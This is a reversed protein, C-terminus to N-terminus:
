RWAGGGPPPLRPPHHSVERFISDIEKSEPLVGRMMELYRRRRVRLWTPKFNLDFVWGVQLLKFDNLNRVHGIDVAKRSLLDAAVDRSFGPTDPLGLELTGNKGRKRGYYHDLVVKWIDLKDADRILRAYFLGTGSVDRPLSSRNHYKISRLIIDKIVPNWSGLVGSKELIDLGLAAHDESARDNFTRHRAMQEFRGVDHLLAIIEALRLEDDDLALRRGLSTIERCVRLTHSKKLDMNRQIMPEDSRYARVFNAFWAKLGSLREEAISLRM